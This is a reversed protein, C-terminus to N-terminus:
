NNVALVHRYNDKDFILCSNDIVKIDIVDRTEQNLYDMIFGINISFSSPTGEPAEMNIEEKSKNSNSLASLTMIDNGFDVTGSKNQKDSTLGVRKLVRVLDRRKLKIVKAESYEETIYTYIDPYVANTLVTQFTYVGSSTEKTFYIRQKDEGYMMQRPEFKEIEKVSNLPIVFRSSETEDILTSSYSLRIRDTTVLSLKGSNDKNIDMCLSNLDKKSIDAGISFSVSKLMSIFNRPLDVSKLSSPITLAPFEMPDESSADLHYKGCSLKVDNTAENYELIINSEDLSSLLSSLTAGHLTFSFNDENEVPCCFISAVNTDTAKVTLVKDKIEFLFHEYIPKISGGSSLSNKLVTTIEKLQNKFIELKM